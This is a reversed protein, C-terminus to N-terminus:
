VIPLSRKCDVERVSVICFLFFLHDNVGFNFDTFVMVFGIPDHRVTAIVYEKYHRKMIVASWLHVVYPTCHLDIICEQWAGGLGGSIYLYM